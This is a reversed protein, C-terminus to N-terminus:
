SREPVRNMRYWPFHRDMAEHNGTEECWSVAESVTMPRIYSGGFWSEVGELEHFRSLMGGEYLLFYDGSASVYLTETDTRFGGSLENASWDGIKTSKAPDFAKEVLAQEVKEYLLEKM